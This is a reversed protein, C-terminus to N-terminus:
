GRGTPRSATHALNMRDKCLSVLRKMESGRVPRPHQLQCQAEAVAVEAAICGERSRGSRALADEESRNQRRGWSWSRKRNGPPAALGGRPHLKGYTRGFPYRRRQRQSYVPRPGEETATEEEQLGDFAVGAKKKYLQAPKVRGAIESGRSETETDSMRAARIANSLWLETKDATPDWSRSIRRWVSVRPKAIGGVRARRLSGTPNDYSNPRDKPKTPSGASSQSLTEFLGIRDKLPSEPKRLEPLEFVEAAELSSRHNARRAKHSPSTNNQQALYTAMQRVQQQHGELTHKLSSLSGKSPKLRLTPSPSTDKSVGDFLKRLDAVKSAQHRLSPGSSSPPPYQPEDPTAPTNDTEITRGQPQRQFGRPAPYSQGLHSMNAPEIARRPTVYPPSEFHTGPTTFIDGEEVYSNRPLKETRVPRPRSNCRCWAGKGGLFLVRTLAKPKLAPNPVPNPEIPGMLRPIIQDRPWGRGNGINQPVSGLSATSRKKRFPPSSSDTQESRHTASASHQRTPRQEFPIGAQPAGEFAM